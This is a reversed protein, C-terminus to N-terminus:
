ERSEGLQSRLARIEAVLVPLYTRSAAILDLDATSAPGSDRSVYMDERRDGDDGVQIFSDGSTQERGEVVSIWPPPDGVESLRLLENLLEDSLSV